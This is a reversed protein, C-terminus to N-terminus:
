CDDIQPESTYRETSTGATRGRSRRPRRTRRGRGVECNRGGDDVVNVCERRRRYESKISDESVFVSGTGGRQRVTRLQLFQCSATAEVTYFDQAGSSAAVAVHLVDVCRGAM